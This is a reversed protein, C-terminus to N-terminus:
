RAGLREVVIRVVARAVGEDAPEVLDVRLGGARARDLPIDPQGGAADADRDDVAADGAGHTSLVVLDADARAWTELPLDPVPGALVALAIEPRLTAVFAALPAGMGIGVAGLPGSRTIPDATIADVAAALVLAADEPDLGAALARAEDADVARRGGLLDPALVVFGAAALAAVLAAADRDLGWADHVLLVGRGRGAPPAARLAAIALGRHDFTTPMADM